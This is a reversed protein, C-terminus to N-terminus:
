QQLSEVSRAVSGPKYWRPGIKDRPHWPWWPFWEWSAKRPFVVDGKHAEKCVVRESNHMLTGYARTLSFSNQKLTLTSRLYDSPSYSLNVTHSSRPLISMTWRYFCTLFISVPRVIDAYQVELFPEYLNDLLMNRWVPFPHHPPIYRRIYCCM